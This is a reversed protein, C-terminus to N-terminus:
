PMLVAGDSTGYATAHILGFHSRAPDPISARGLERNTKGYGAAVALM